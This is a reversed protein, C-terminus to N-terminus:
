FFILNFFLLFSLPHLLVLFFSSNFFSVVSTWAAWVWHAVMDYVITSWVLTFVIWTRFRLRAAVAGSILAPTIM